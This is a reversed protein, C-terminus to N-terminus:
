SVQKTCVVSVAFFHAYMRALVGTHHYLLENVTSFWQSEDQCNFSRKSRRLCCFNLQIM